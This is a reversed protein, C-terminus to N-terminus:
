TNNYTWEKQVRDIEVVARYLEDYEIDNLVNKAYITAAGKIERLDMHGVKMYLDKSILNKLLDINKPRANNSM